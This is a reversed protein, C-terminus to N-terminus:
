WGINAFGGNDFTVDDDEFDEDDDFGEDDYDEDDDEAGPANEFGLGNITNGDSPTEHGTPRIM